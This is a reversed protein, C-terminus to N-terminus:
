TGVLLAVAVAVTAGILAGAIRDLRVAPAAAYGILAGLLVLLVLVLM